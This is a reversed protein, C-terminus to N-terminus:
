KDEGLVVGFGVHDLRVHNPVYGAMKGAEFVTKFHLSQQSTSQTITNIITM